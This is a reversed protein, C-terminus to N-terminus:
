FQTKCTNIMIFELLKVLLDLIVKEWKFVFASANKQM